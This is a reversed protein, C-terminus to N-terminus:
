FFMFPELHSALDGSDIPLESPKGLDIGVLLPPTFRPRFCALDSLKSIPSM